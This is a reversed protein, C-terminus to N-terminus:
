PAFWLLLSPLPQASNRSACVIVKLRGFVPMATVVKKVQQSRALMLLPQRLLPM